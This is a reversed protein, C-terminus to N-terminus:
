VCKKKRGLTEPLGLYKGNGGEKQIQLDRKVRIKMESSTKASFTISSKDFNICQGSAKEYKQLISILNQCSKHDSRMFFMTDDAFLLHNVRPSKRAVKIGPLSGDQQAKKCLGSLVETCLIFLYPSLLDGQRLGRSPTVKGQAAGNVLYSYSVTSVCEM